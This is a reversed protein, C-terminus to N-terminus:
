SSPLGRLDGILCLTQENISVETVGVDIYIQIRWYSILEILKPAHTQIVMKDKVVQLVITPITQGLSTYFHCLFTSSHWLYETTCFLHGFLCLMHLPFVETSNFWSSSISTLLPNSFKYHIKSPFYRNSLSPQPKYDKSFHM